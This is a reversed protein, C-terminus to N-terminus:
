MYEKETREHSCVALSILILCALVRPVCGWLVTERFKLIMLIILPTLNSLIDRCVTVDKISAFWEKLCYRSYEATDTPQCQESTSVYPEGM